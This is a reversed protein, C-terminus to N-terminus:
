LNWPVPKSTKRLYLPHCPTGDKSLKLIHPKVGEGILMKVLRPGQEQLSRHGPQGYAFIVIGALKAMEILHKDNAPGKPDPIDRLCKKNTARYAFTNGVYIGGYVGWARAFRECKAVSRDNVTEDATSPNMMIFMAHPKTEDWTRQLTYRYCDGPGGFEPPSSKVDSRLALRVKGGPDHKQPICAM